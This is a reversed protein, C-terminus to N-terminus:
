EPCDPKDDGAAPAPSNRTFLGLVFEFLIRLVFLAFFWIIMAGSVGISGSLFGEFYLPNGLSDSFDLYTINLFDANGIILLFIFAPSLVFSESFFGGLFLSKIFRKFRIKM